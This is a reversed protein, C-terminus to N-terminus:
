SGLSMQIVIELPDRWLTDHPLIGNPWIMAHPNETICSIALDSVEKNGEEPILRAVELGSWLLSKLQVQRSGGAETMPSSFRILSFQLGHLVFVRCSYSQLWFLLNIGGCVPLTQRGRFRRHAILPRM